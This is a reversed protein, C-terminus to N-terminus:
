QNYGVIKKCIETSKLAFFKREFMDFDIGIM